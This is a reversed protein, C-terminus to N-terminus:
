QLASNGSPQSEVLRQPCSSMVASAVQDLIVVPDTADQVELKM